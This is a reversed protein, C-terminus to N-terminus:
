ETPSELTTANVPITASVPRYGKISLSRPIRQLAGQFYRDVMAKAREPDDTWTLATRYLEAYETESM